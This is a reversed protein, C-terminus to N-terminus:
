KKSAEIAENLAESLEADTAGSNRINDHAQSLLGLLNKSAEHKESQSPAVGPSYTMIFLKQDTAIQAGVLESIVERQAPTIASISKAASHTTTTM